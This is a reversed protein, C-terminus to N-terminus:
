YLESSALFNIAKLPMLRRVEEGIKEYHREWLRFFALSDMVSIKSSRFLNSEQLAENTFGGTSVILGFDNQELGALFSKIGELTVPQGKNIIQVFMRQGSVGLPDTYAVLDIKGNQKEIPRMWLPYYGMLLLLESFMAQLDRSNLKQLHKEIQRWAAEQALELVVGNESFARKKENYLRLAELFFDQSSSYGVCADYGTQTIYWLGKGNKALWGAQVVPISAIRVIKEYRPVAVSASVGLEDESLKIIKPIRALIDRAIVGDRKEWLIEFVSRLLESARKVTINSM